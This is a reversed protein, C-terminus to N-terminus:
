QLTESLDIYGDDLVAFTEFNREEDDTGLGVNM